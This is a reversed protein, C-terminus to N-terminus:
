EATTLYFERNKIWASNQKSRSYIASFDVVGPFLVGLLKDIMDVNDPNFSCAGLGPMLYGPNAVGQTNIIRAANHHRSLYKHYDGSFLVNVTQPLIYNSSQKTRLYNLYKSSVDPLHTKYVVSHSSYKADMIHTKIEGLNFHVLVFDPKYNIGRQSKTDVISYPVGKTITEQGFTVAEPEYWIDIREDEKEFRYYNNPENIPKVSDTNSKLHRYDAIVCQFGATNFYSLIQTLCVLEYLKAVNRIGYVM